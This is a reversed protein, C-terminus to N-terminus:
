VNRAIQIVKIIKHSQEIGVMKSEHESFVGVLAEHL